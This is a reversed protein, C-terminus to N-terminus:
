DQEAWSNIINVIDALNNFAGLYERTLPVTKRDFELGDVNGALNQIMSMLRDQTAEDAMDNLMKLRQENMESSDHDMRFVLEIRKSNSGNGGGHRSFLIAKEFQKLNYTTQEKGFLGQKTVTISGVIRNFEAKVPMQMLIIAICFILVLIFYDIQFASSGSHAFIYVFLSSSSFICLFLIKFPWSRAIILSEKTNELVKM